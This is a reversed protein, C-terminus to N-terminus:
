VSCLSIEERPQSLPICVHFSNATSNKLHQSFSMLLQLFQDVKFSGMLLQLSFLNMKHRVSRPVFISKRQLLSSLTQPSCRLRCHKYVQRLYQGFCIRKIFASFFLPKKEGQLTQRFVLNNRLHMNLASTHAFSALFVSLQPASFKKILLATMHVKNEETVISAPFHARFGNFGGSFCM